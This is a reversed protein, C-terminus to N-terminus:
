QRGSAQLHALGHLLSQNKQVCSGVRVIRTHPVRFVLEGFNVKEM